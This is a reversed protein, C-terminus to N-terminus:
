APMVLTREKLPKVTTEGVNPEVRSPLRRRTPNLSTQLRILSPVKRSTPSSSTYTLSLPPRPRYAGLTVWVRPLLTTATRLLSQSRHGSVVVRFPLADDGGRGGAGDGSMLFIGSQGM